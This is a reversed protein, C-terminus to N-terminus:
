VVDKEDAAHIVITLSGLGQIRRSLDAKMAMRLRGVEDLTLKGDALLHIIGLILPGSRRLMISEAKLGYRGEVVSKIEEIVEPSQFADLLVLSAEKISIYAVSYIYLAIIMGGIADMSPLGLELGIIAGFGVFSASTDKISNLADTRLSLLGHKRAVRRMQLARYLSILGAALLIVLVLPTYSVERPALLRLYSAYIFVTAMIAMGISAVFAAFSEVRLYGFHFKEDPAKASIELGIWVALSIVADSVSDAGDTTLTISSSLLGALIEVIGIGLLTLFSLKAIREADQFRRGAAHLTRSERATRRRLIFLLGEPERRVRPFPIFGSDM